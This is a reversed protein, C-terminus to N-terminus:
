GDVRAPRATRDRGPRHGPDVRTVTGDRVHWILGALDLLEPRHAVCAVTGPFSAVARRLICISDRDLHADAEDLLLLRPRGLLARALMLRTQQGTSLGAGDEGLRTQEGDPLRALVEDLGSLRRVTNLQDPTADPVRYRLNRGISGRLLPLQPSVVGVAARLPRVNRTTFALKARALGTPNLRNGHGASAPAPVTRITTTM